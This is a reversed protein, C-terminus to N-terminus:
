LVPVQLNNILVNMLGAQKLYACPKCITVITLYLGGKCNPIYRLGTDCDAHPAAPRYHM